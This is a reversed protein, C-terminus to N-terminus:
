EFLTDFQEPRYVAGVRFPVPADEGDEEVAAQPERLQHGDVEAVHHAVVVCQPHQTLAVFLADDVQVLGALIGDGGVQRHAGFVPHFVPVGQEEAVPLGPELGDGHLDHHFFVQLLDAQAPRPIRHVLQPVRRGGEHVAVAVHVDPHELVNQAM